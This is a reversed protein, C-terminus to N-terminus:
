SNDAANRPPIDVGELKHIFRDAPLVAGCKKCVAADNGSVPQLVGKSFTVDWDHDCGGADTKWQINGEGEYVCEALSVNEITKLVYTHGPEKVLEAENFTRTVTARGDPLDSDWWTDAVTIAKMDGYFWLGHGQRQGNAMTGSYIYGGPYVGIFSGYETQFIYPAALSDTLDRFEESLILDNRFDYDTKETITQAIAIAMELIEEKRNVLEAAKREEEELSELRATIEADERLKLMRAYLEMARERNGGAEANEAIGRFLNLIIDLDKESINEKGAANMGQELMRVADRDKGNVSYIEAIGEYAEIVKPDLDLVLEFSLLAENYNRDELYKQGLDLQKKMMTEPSERCASLLAAICLLFVLFRRGM